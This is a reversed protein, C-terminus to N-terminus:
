ESAFLMSYYSSQDNYTYIRWKKLRAGTVYGNLEFLPASKKTSKEFLERVSNFNLYELDEQFIYFITDM